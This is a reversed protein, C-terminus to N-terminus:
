DRARPKHVLLLVSGFLAAGMAVMAVGFSAGHLLALGTVLALACLIAIGAPVSVPDSAPRTAM